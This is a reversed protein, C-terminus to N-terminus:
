HFIALAAEVLKGEDLNRTNAYYKGGPKLNQILGLREAM